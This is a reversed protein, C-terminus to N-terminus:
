FLLSSYWALLPEGFMTVLYWACILAPGFPVTEGGGKRRLPLAMLIGAGCGVLLLLLMKMWDMYLGLVFLLKLDGGGMTERGMWRDALLVILLLPVSVSCAGIGMSILTGPLPQGLVFLFVLRNVVALLLIKDPIMKLRWDVLSLLLGLCGLILWMLLEPALGFRWGLGVFLLVGSVEAVLCEAPIKTGCYRCRGRNWLYSFVPVLDRAALTRGCAGCHSRGTLVSEGCALRDAACDLFSGMVAGLVGLWFLFYVTLSM